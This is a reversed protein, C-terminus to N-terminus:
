KDFTGHNGLARQELVVTLRTALISVQEAFTMAYGILKGPLFPGQWRMLMRIFTCFLLFAAHNIALKLEVRALLTKRQRVARKHMEIVEGVNLVTCDLWKLAVKTREELFVRQIRSPTHSTVFLWDDPSFIRQALARPPMGLNLTVLADRAAAADREEAAAGAGRRTWLLLLILFVLGISILLITENM